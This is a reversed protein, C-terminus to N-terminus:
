PCHCDGASNDAGNKGGMYGGLVVLLGGLASLLILTKFQNM